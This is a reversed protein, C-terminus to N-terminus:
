FHIQSLSYKRYPKGLYQCVYHYIINYADLILQKNEQTKEEEKLSMYSCIDYLQVKKNSAIMADILRKGFKNYQLKEQLDVIIDEYNSFIDNDQQERNIEFLDADLHKALHNISTNLRMNAKKTKNTKELRKESGVIYLYEKIRCDISMNVYKNVINDDVLKDIDLCYFVSQLTRNIIDVQYEQLNTVKLLKSIFLDKYFMLWKAILVDDFKKNYKVRQRINGNKFTYNYKEYEAEIM